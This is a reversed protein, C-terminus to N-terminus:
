DNLVDGKEFYSEWKARLMHYKYLLKAYDMEVGFLMKEAEFYDIFSVSDVEYAKQFSSLGLEANRILSDRYLQITKATTNIDSLLTKLQTRNVNHQDLEMEIASLNHQEAEEVSAANRSNFWPISMGIHGGYQNDMGANDWYEIQASFNPLYRDDQIRKKQRSVDQMLAARKQTLTESILESSINESIGKIGATYNLSAVVNESVGLLQQFEAELKTKQHQLRLLQEDLKGKTVEAKLVNGQLGSGSRYKVDAINVMKQLIDQNKKTVQILADNLVLQYYGKKVRFVFRNEAIQYNVKALQYQKEGLQRKRGLEGLFPFSQNIFYRKQDANYASNKAPMGNFRVGVMPDDLSGLKSPLVSNAKLTYQHAKIHPSNKLGLRVADDATSILETAAFLVPNGFFLYIFVAFLTKKRKMIVERRSNPIGFKM